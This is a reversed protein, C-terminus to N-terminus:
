SRQIYTTNKESTMRVFGFGDRPPSPFGRFKPNVISSQRNVISEKLWWDDIMLWWDDIMLGFDAPNGPYFAARSKKHSSCVWTFPIWHWDSYLPPGIEQAQIETFRSVSRGRPLPQPLFKTSLGQFLPFLIPGVRLGFLSPPISHWTHQIVHKVFFLLTTAWYPKDGSFDTRERHAHRVTWVVRRCAWPSRRLIKNLLLDLKSSV